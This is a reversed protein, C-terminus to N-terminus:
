WSWNWNPERRNRYSNTSEENWAGLRGYSLVLSTPSSISCVLGGVVGWFLKCAFFLMYRIIVPM